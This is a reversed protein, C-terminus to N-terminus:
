GSVADPAEPEGGSVLEIVLRHPLCVIPMYGGTMWGRNVCVRDPCDADSVRVAGNKVTIVNYGGDTEVTLTAEGTVASLDIEYLTEGNLAIRAVTAGTESRGMILATGLCLAFLAAVAIVLVSTRVTKKEAM